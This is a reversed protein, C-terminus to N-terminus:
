RGLIAGGDVNLTQGNIWSGDDSMLFAVTAAIDDATGLRISRNGRTLKAVDEAPMGAVMPEPLVSGPAIANARIGQRGHRSAVHRVISTMGTKATAYGVRVPEGAYVAASATGVIAGGGREILLPIAHRVVLFFGTLGVDLTRQWVALPLTTIDHQGDVGLTEPSMDMANSHVGDLGGYTSVAVAFVAAVSAEDAVDCHAALASGGASEIQAVTHEAASRDLDAVVVQAGEAALRRASAGGISPRDANSGGAVVVVVKSELGRM